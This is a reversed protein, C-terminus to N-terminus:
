SFLGISELYFEIFHSRRCSAYKILAKEFIEDVDIL